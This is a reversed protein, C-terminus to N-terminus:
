LDCSTPVMGDITVASTLPPVLITDGAELRQMSSRVGHLLLDYVDVDEILQKGRYHKLTRLSGRSTPGGAEHLANLPTSLSSVDYAGPSEVDGVVYVRVTRLRSLSVDAQVDRYQSRLAAQVLQQVDGLSKGAVQIGGIEPLAVKGERDVVRRLRQSIGGWLDISLGDGPGVVYDPGAPVDMPLQELNGSGNRFVDMGFRELVAPRQSYQSYLDYLSPVDAYPNPRRKLAHQDRRFKSSDPVQSRPRAEAPMQSVRTTNELSELSAAMSSGSGLGLPSSIGTDTGISNQAAMPSNRSRDEMRASLLGSLQDPSVRQMGVVDLPLGTYYDGVQSQAQAQEIARRRDAPNPTTPAQPQSSPPVAGPALPGGDQSGQRPRSWYADEQSKGTQQLEDAGSGQLVRIQQESELERRTPKVRVYGRDEIERTVMARIYDDTTILRFLAEDTLDQPDLLRGQGYARRVLLKKVQLLM